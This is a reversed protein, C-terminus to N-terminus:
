SNLQKAYFKRVTWNSNVIQTVRVLSTSGLRAGVCELKGERKEGHMRRLLRRRRENTRPLTRGSKKKERALVEQEGIKILAALLVQRRWCVGDALVKSVEQKKKAKKTQWANLLALDM